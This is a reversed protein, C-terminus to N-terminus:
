VETLPVNGPAEKIARSFSQLSEYLKAIEPSRKVPLDRSGARMLTETVRQVTLNSVATGPQYALTEDKRLTESLLGVKVMEHLLQGTTRPPMELRDAVEEASLAPQGDVFRRALLSCIRLCFLLKYCYSANESEEQLDLTEVNQHAFSVEAGFLFILWSIQLWILFLPLAAFSGYIVNARSVGIQFQIHFSQGIQYLTGALIGGTLGSLFRVHTNPLTVYVFIFVVWVTCYPLINLLLTAAPSLAWWFPLVDGASSIYKGAAVTLSSSVVLLLPCLFLIVLYDAVKRALGRAEELGWLDNLAMEIHKLVKFASWFLVLLGIGSILGGRAEELLTRSTEIVRSIVEEHGRFREMIETELMGEFGFGKAIGFAVALLPVIALLTYFTLASARLFCRDALIDRISIVLMRALKLPVAKYAPLTHSSVRWLDEQVLKKLRSFTGKVM